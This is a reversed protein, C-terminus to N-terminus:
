PADSLGRTIKTKIPAWHYYGIMSPISWPHGQFRKPQPPNISFKKKPADPKKGRKGRLFCRFFTPTLPSVLPSLIARVPCPGFPVLRRTSTNKKESKLTTLWIVLITIVVGTCVLTCVCCLCRSVVSGLPHRTLPNGIKGREGPSKGGM